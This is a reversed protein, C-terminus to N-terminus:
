CVNRTLTHPAKISTKNKRLNVRIVNRLTPKHVTKITLKYPERRNEVSELM